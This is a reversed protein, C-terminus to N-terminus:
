WAEGFLYLIGTSYLSLYRHGPDHDPEQLPRRAPLSPISGSAVSHSSPLPRFLVALVHMQTRCSVSGIHLAQQTQFRWHCSIFATKQTRNQEVFQSFEPPSTLVYCMTTWASSFPTENLTLYTSLILISSVGIFVWPLILCLFSAHM